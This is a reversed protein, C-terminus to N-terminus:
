LHNGCHESAERQYLWTYEVQDIYGRVAGNNGWGRIAIKEGPEHRGGPTRSMSGAFGYGDCNYTCIVSGDVSANKGVILNTCAKVPTSLQLAVLALMSLFLQRIRM